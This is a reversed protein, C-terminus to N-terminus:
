DILRGYLGAKCQDLGSKALIERALLRLEALNRTEGLSNLHVTLDPQQPFKAELDVGVVNSVGSYLGNNNRGLLKEPPVEIFVEFYGPLNERNWESVGEHMAITSIVTSFGRSLFFLCLEGYLRALRKRGELSYSEPSRAGMFDRILDGDLWVIEAGSARGERVLSEALSTKGSGSLGTIWVCVAGESQEGSECSETKM